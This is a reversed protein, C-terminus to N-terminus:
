SSQIQKKKYTLKKKLLPPFIKAIYKRYRHSSRYKMLQFKNRGYCKMEDFCLTVSDPFYTWAMKLMILPHSFETSTIQCTAGSCTNPGLFWTGSKRDACGLITMKPNHEPLIEPYGYFVRQSTTTKPPHNKPTIKPALLCMRAVLCKAHRPFIPIWPIELNQWSWAM